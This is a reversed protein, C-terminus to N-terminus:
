KEEGNREKKWEGAQHTCTEYRANKRREHYAESNGVKRKKGEKKEALKEGERRKRRKNIM